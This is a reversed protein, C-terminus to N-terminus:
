KWPEEWESQSAAIIRVRTEFCHGVTQADYHENAVIIYQM